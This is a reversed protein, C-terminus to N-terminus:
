HGFYNHIKMTWNEKSTRTIVSHRSNTKEEEHGHYLGRAHGHSIAHARRLCANKTGMTIAVPMGMVLLMPM